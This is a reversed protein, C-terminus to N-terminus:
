KKKLKIKLFTFSQVKEYNSNKKTAHTYLYSIYQAWRCRKIFFNVNESLLIWKSELDNLIIEKAIM